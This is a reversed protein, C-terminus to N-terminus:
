VADGLIYILMPDSLVAASRSCALLLCPGSLLRRGCWGSPTEPHEARDGENDYGRHEKPADFEPQSYAVIPIRGTRKDLDLGVALGAVAVVRLETL